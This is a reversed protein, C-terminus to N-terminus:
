VPRSKLWCEQIAHDIQSAIQEPDSLCAVVCSIDRSMNVFTDFKGNGLTHHLLMGNAQSATSPTGVIHVVPVYESYAGAM